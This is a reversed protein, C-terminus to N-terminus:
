DKPTEVVLTAEGVLGSPLLQEDGPGWMPNSTRTFREEEPLAADGILRNCWLNAVTVTLENGSTKLLSAPIEVRWPKTWLTQLEQGNLEVRAMVSVDDFTLAIEGTEPVGEPLDFTKRYVARGSYHRLYEDDSKSWDELADFRV